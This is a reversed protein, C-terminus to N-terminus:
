VIIIILFVYHGFFIIAVPDREMYRIVM